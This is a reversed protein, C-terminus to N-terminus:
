ATDKRQGSALEMVREPRDMWLSASYPTDLEDGEEEFGSLVRIERMLEQRDNAQECLYNITAEKSNADIAAHRILFFGFVLLVMILALLFTILITM